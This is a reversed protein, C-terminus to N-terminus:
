SEIFEAFQRAYLPGMVWKGIDITHYRGYSRRGIASRRHLGSAPDHVDKTGAAFIIGSRQSCLPAVRAAQASIVPSIASLGNLTDDRLMDAEEGALQRPWPPPRLDGTMGRRGAPYWSLFMNGRGYNVIDGFPGLVITASPMNHMEEPIEAARLFHKIRFSWEFVPAIGASADLFLMDEWTTNVFQAARRREIGAPTAVEFAVYDSGPQVKRIESHLHCTIRPESAVRRRLLAALTEPDIAIEPTEFVATVTRDDYGSLNRCRRVPQRPDTGPMDVSTGARTVIKQTVVDYYAALLEHDVLSDRHVVYHFPTSTAVTDIANGLLRRLNPIFSLAGDVLLDATRGSEDKAFVFGLHLKGENQVGAQTLINACKEFLDVDIGRSALELALTVGQLGAGGIAIRM